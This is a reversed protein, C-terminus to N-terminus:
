LKFVSIIFAIVVINKDGVHSITKIRRKDFDVYKMDIAKLIVSELRKGLIVVNRDTDKIEDFLEQIRYLQTQYVNYLIRGENRNITIKGDACKGLVNKMKAIEYEEPAIGLM